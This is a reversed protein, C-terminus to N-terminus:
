VGFLITSDLEILIATKFKAIDSLVLVVVIRHKAILRGSASHIFDNKRYFFLKEVMKKSYEFYYQVKASLFLGPKQEMSSDQVLTLLKIIRHVSLRMTNIKFSNIM